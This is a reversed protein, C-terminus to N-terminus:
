TGIIGQVANEEVLWVSLDAHICIDFGLVESVLVCLNAKNNVERVSFVVEVDDVPMDGRCGASCDEGLQCIAQIEIHCKYLKFVQRVYHVIEEAM